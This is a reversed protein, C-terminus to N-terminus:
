KVDGDYGENYEGLVSQEYSTLAGYPYRILKVQSSKRMGLTLHKINGLMEEKITM